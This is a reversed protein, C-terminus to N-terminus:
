WAPAHARIRSPCPKRGSRSCSAGARAAALISWISNPNEKAFTVFSCVSDADITAHTSTFLTQDELTMLIPKWAHQEAEPGAEDSDLTVQLNVDLIRANNEVREMYRALWFLSDAVRRLM